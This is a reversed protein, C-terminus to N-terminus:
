YTYVGSRGPISLLHGLAGLPVFGGQGPAWLHPGRFTCGEGGFLVRTVECLGPGGAGLLLCSEECVWALSQPAQQHCATAGHVRGQPHCAAAAAGLPCKASPAQEESMIAPLLDPM